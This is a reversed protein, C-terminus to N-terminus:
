GRWNLGCRTRCPCRASQIRRRARWSAFFGARRMSTCGNSATPRARGFGGGLMLLFAKWAEPDDERLEARAAGVLEAVDFTPVYRPARDRDLILAEFPDPPLEFPLVRLMKRSWYARAQRCFSAASRGAEPSNGRSKRYAFVASEIAKTTLKPLPFADVAERWKAAGGTRGDFREHGAQIEAVRAAVWRLSSAYGRLTIPRVHLAGAEAAEILEGVTTGRKADRVRKVEPALDAFADDWGSVKLVAVFRAAKRGAERVDSTGLPVPERRGDHAIRVSYADAEFRKGDRTWWPKFVRSEWKRVGTQIAGGAHQKAVQKAVKPTRQPETM